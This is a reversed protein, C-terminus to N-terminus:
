SGKQSLLVHAGCLVKWLGLTADHVGTGYRASVAFCSVLPLQLSLEKAHEAAAKGADIKNAVVCFPKSLLSKDYESIENRLVNFDELANGSSVDLVFCLVRARKVHRLFDHGLGVNRHAGELLGPIDTVSFSRAQVSVVGIYPRLTTFPYAAVKPKANSIARLFSSKGANPFGVLGVDAITQMEVKYVIREGDEGLTREHIERGFDANGLGGIGGRAALFREGDESLTHAREKDESTLQTGIPVSLLKPTGRSGARNCHGGNGGPGGSVVSQGRLSDLSSLSRSACFIVDGGPGGNGGAAKGRQRSRAQEFDVGGSGGRGGQVVVRLSDCFNGRAGENKYFRRFNQM